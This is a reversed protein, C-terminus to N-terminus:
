FEGAVEGEHSYELVDVSTRSRSRAGEEVGMEEKGKEVAKGEEPLFFRPNQLIPDLDTQPIQNKFIDSSSSFFGERSPSLTTESANMIPTSTSTSTSAM